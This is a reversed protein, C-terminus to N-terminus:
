DVKLFSIQIQIQKGNELNILKGEYIFVTCLGTPVFYMKETTKYLFIIPNVKSVVICDSRYEIKFPIETGLFSSNKSNTFILNSAIKLVREGENFPYNQPTNEYNNSSCDCGTFYEHNVTINVLIYGFLFIIGMRYAERPTLIFPYM